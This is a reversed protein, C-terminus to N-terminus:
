NDDVEFEKKPMKSAPGYPNSTKNINIQQTQYAGSGLRNSQWM